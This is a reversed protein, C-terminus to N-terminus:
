VTGGAVLQQFHAFQEATFEPSNLYAIIRGRGRNRGMGVRRVALICAALLALHTEDPEDAFHLPAVLQTGRLLVRMSRLSKDQPAETLDDVATQRRIGTLSNLVSAVTLRGAEIDARVAEQLKDPLAAAGVYMRGDDELGSGARGFLFHAANNLPDSRDKLNLAFFINACEEVLLGKLTRGRLFPLGTPPDYEVEADVLGAVGDGRGFTADSELTIWLEHKM